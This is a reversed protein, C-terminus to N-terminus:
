RGWIAQGEEGNKEKGAWRKENDKGKDAPRTKMFLVYPSTSNPINPYLSNGLDVLIDIGHVLGRSGKAREKLTETRHVNERSEVRTGRNVIFPSKLCHKSFTSSNQIWVRAVSYTTGIKRHISIRSSNELIISFKLRFVTLSILRPLTWRCPPSSLLSSSRFSTKVSLFSPGHRSLYIQDWSDYLEGWFLCTFIMRGEDQEAHFNQFCFVRSCWGDDIGGQVNVTKTRPAFSCRVMYADMASEEIIINADFFIIVVGSPHLCIKGVVCKPFSFPLNLQGACGTKNEEKEKEKKWVHVRLCESGWRAESERTNALNGRTTALLPEVNSNHHTFERKTVQCM